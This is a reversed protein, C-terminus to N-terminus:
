LPAATRGRVALRSLAWVAGGAAGYLHAAVVVPGGSTTESFPLPGATQEWLLKAVLGALLLGGLAPYPRLMALGGAALLGHLVGSLGVYWVIQEAFFYLGADIALAAALASGLWDVASLADDVLLRIMILAAVNLALHGMGLHVLHGSVLRWLQGAEIAEREYRCWLTWAEGGIALVAPVTMLVAVPIWGALSQRLGAVAAPPTLSTNM